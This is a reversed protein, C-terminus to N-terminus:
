GNAEVGRRGKEVFRGVIQLDTEPSFVFKDIGRTTRAWALEGEAVHSTLEFLALDGAHIDLAALDENVMELAAFQGDFPVALLAFKEIVFGARAHQRTKAM